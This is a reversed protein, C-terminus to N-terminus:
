KLRRPNFEMAEAVYGEAVSGEFIGRVEVTKSNLKDVTFTIVSPSLSVPTISRSDIGEPYKITYSFRNVGSSNISSLDIVASLSGSRLKSIERRSGSLVVTVSTTDVETIILGRGERLAGEGQFEVKVGQFTESFDEGQSATVYMWLILSVIVSIIAWFLRSDTIRNIAAGRKM